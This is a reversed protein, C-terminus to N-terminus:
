AWVSKVLASLGDYYEGSRPEIDGLKYEVGLWEYKAPAGPNYPLLEVDRVGAKKAFRAIDAISEHSDNIGPVCPVRITIKKAVDAERCLRELNDLIPKNDAGARKKHEREDLLKIDYYIMDCYEAAERLADYACFGCTEMLTHIGADRCLRLLSIVFEAQSLPEGGTVTIGGGSNAYYPLDRSIEEFVDSAERWLGCIRLARSVCGGACAFCSVCKARDIRIGESTEGAVGSEESAGSERAASSDGPSVSDESEGSEGSAISEGATGSEARALSIANQPCINVCKGCCLCRSSQYILEEAQKQSEPSHCWECSLPCGKLFVAARIGPGDHTSFRDIDFILGRARM